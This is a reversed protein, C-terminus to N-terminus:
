FAVATFASAYFLVWQEFFYLFTLSAFPKPVKNLVWAGAAAALAGFDLFEYFFHCNSLKYLM